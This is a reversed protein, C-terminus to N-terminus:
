STKNQRHAASSSARRGSIGSSAQHEHAGQVPHGYDCNKDGDPNERHVRKAQFRLVSVPGYRKYDSPICLPIDSRLYRVCFST